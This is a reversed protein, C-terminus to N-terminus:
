KLYIRNKNYFLLTFMYKDVDLFPQNSETIGIIRKEGNLRINAVEM